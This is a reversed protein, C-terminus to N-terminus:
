ICLNPEGLTKLGTEYEESFVRKLIGQLRSTTSSYKKINFAYRDQKACYIFMITSYSYVTYHGNEYYATVSNGKFPRMDKLAQPM